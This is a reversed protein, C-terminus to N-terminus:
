DEEFACANSEVIETDLLDIKGDSVQNWFEQVAEIENEAEVNFWGLATETYKISYTKLL